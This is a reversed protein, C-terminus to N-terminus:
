KYLTGRLQDIYEKTSVAAIAGDGCATVIQRLIKKRIDGCAFIGKKSTKMDGDTIIYGEKDLAVLKKLFETNPVYGAFIFVGDCSIIEENGTKLNKVRVAEIKNGGLIEVVIREFLFSLRKNSFAREQLIETARLRDRRHVVTIKKAFRTLFIAEEIATNGGGVVVVNKGKFLAGDCTACYSVGRGVFKEEGPVDLKRPKAGAAVIIAETKYEGDTCIVSWLRRDSHSYEKFKEVATSKFVAGFSESQKRMRDLLELGNVGGPFGPFNEIESALSVQSPHCVDEVVLTKLHARSTYIAATLGAPGAGVIVVDYSEVAM